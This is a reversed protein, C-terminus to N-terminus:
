KEVEVIKMDRIEGVRLDFGCAVCHGYEIPYVEKCYPCFKVIRM